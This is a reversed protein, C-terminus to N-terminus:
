IRFLANWVNIRTRSIGNRSDYVSPGSAQLAAQLQDVSAGPRFQRLVAIAGAVHPAAMSTGIYRCDIGDKYDDAELWTPVASCIDTGPALLDLTWNSNSGADAVYGFVADNGLPDLTTNGVSIANSICAPYGVSDIWDKNGSSVVTAIGVDKLLNIWGTLYAANSSGDQGGANDCYGTAFSGGLSMNVAAIRHSSRLSYVHQLAFTLDSEWYSPRGTTRHFVQIAIIQSGSAVGYTGAATHAVHTGHACDAHFNCPAAAGYGFRSYTGYPCDGGNYSANIAFCAENVVRGSILSHNRDVGSDIVAVTQGSGTWGNSRATGVGIHNYDWWPSLQNSYGNPSTAAAAGVAAGPTVVDLPIERDETVAAVLDSRRLKAIDDAGARFAILPMQNTAKFSPLRDRGLEDLLADRTEGIARRQVARESSTLEHEPGADVALAVIVPLTRELKAKAELRRFDASTTSPVQFQARDAASAPTPLILAAFAALLALLVSARRPDLNVSIAV